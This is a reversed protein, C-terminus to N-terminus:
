DLAALTYKTIREMDLGGNDLMLPKADFLLVVGVHMSATENELDLFIADLASLREHFAKAM